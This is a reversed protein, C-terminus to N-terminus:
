FTEIRSAILKKVAYVALQNAIEPMIRPGSHVLVVRIDSKRITSYFRAATHTFDHLEAVTETGAFGGGAVVFTLMSRRVDPDSELDAHAFVDLIHNRLGMADGLTKM